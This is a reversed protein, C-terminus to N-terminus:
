LFIESIVLLTIDDEAGAIGSSITRVRLETMSINGLNGAFDRLQSSLVVRIANNKDPKMRSFETESYVQIKISSYGMDEVTDFIRSLGQPIKIPRQQPM